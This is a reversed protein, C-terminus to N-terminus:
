YRWADGSSSECQNEVVPEWSLKVLVAQPFTEKIKELDRRVNTIGLWIYPREKFFPKQDTESGKWIFINSARNPDIITYHNATM